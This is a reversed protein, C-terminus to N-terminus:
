SGDFDRFTFCNQNASQGNEGMNRGVKGKFTFELQKSDPTEGEGISILSDMEMVSDDRPQLPCGFTQEEFFCSM